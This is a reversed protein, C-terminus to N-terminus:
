NSRHKFIRLRYSGTFSNTRETFATDFETNATTVRCTFYPYDHTLMVKPKDGGGILGLGQSSTANNQIIAMSSTPVGGGSVATPTQLLIYTPAAYADTAAGCAVSFTTTATLTSSANGIDLLILDVTATATFYQDNQFRRDTDDTSTPIGNFPNMVSVITTTSDPFDAGLMFTVFGAHDVWPTMIVSNGGLDIDEVPTTPAEIFDGTWEEVVMSPSEDSVFGVVFTGIAFVSVLGLMTLSVILYTKYTKKNM